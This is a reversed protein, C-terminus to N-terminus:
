IKFHAEINQIAEDEFFTYFINDTKVWFLLQEILGKTFIKKKQRLHIYRYKGIIPPKEEYINDMEAWELNIDINSSHIEIGRKTILIQTSFINDLILYISIFVVICIVMEFNLSIISYLNNNVGELANDLDTIGFIFCALCLFTLLLVPIIAGVQIINGLRYKKM